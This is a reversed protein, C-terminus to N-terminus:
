VSALDTVWSIKKSQVRALGTQIITIDMSVGESGDALPISLQEYHDSQRNVLADPGVAHYLTLLGYETKLPPTNAGIMREWDFKATALLQCNRFSLLDVRSRQHALFAKRQTPIPNQFQSQKPKNQSQKKPSWM